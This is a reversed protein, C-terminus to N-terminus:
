SRTYSGLSPARYFECQPRKLLPICGVSINKGPFNLYTDLHMNITPDPEDGPILPHAPQHIVAVEEFNIGRRLVQSAGNLNTRDGIGNMAIKGAPIFDGGEFTGPAKVGNVSKAGAMELITRTIAPEMRRQPKSMRGVILGLDSAVQQDRM